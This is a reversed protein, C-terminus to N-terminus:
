ATGRSQKMARLFHVRTEHKNKGELGMRVMRLLGQARAKDDATAYESRELGRIHEWLAQTLVASDYDDILLTLEHLKKNAM